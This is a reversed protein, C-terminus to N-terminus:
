KLHRSLFDLALAHASRSLEPDYREGEDRAFAHSANFEHWEYNTQAEELRAQVLRRGELPIHPDQRGWIMLLEGRIDGARALSDDGASGLTWAHLDTAYFCAASEVEPEMAARFALHGGVCVGMAGIRGTTHSSARLRAVVARTDADFADIPKGM